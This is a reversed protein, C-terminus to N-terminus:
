RRGRAREEWRRLTEVNRGRIVVDLVPNHVLAALGRHPHEDIRLEVGGDRLEVTLVIHAAGVPWARAELELRRDPQYDLSRTRDHHRLLGYGVTYHLCTGEAPWGPEVARIARTGVVWDAYSHGDRLVDFAAAASLGPAFRTTVGM